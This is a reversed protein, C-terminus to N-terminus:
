PESKMNYMRFKSLPITHIMMTPKYICLKLARFIRYQEKMEGEGCVSTVALRKGTEMTKCKGSHWIILIM